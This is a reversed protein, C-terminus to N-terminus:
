KKEVERIVWLSFIWSGLMLALGSPIVGPEIKDLGFLSPVIISAFLIQGIAILIDSLKDLQSDSFFQEM